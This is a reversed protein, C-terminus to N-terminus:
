SVTNPSSSASASQSEVMPMPRIVGALFQEFPDDAPIPGGAAVRTRSSPTLGFEAQLQMLQALCRNAISLFPNQIPVGGPTKVVLGRLRVQEEADLWRVWVQCLQGLAGTDLATMIRNAALEAALERFKAKGRECLYEPPEPVAPPPDPEYHNVRGPRLTGRLQKLRTPLPKRGAM